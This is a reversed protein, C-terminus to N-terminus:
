AVPMIITNMTMVFMGFGSIGDDLEGPLRDSTIFNGNKTMSQCTNHFDYLWCVHFSSIISDDELVIKHIQEPFQSGNISDFYKGDMNAISIFPNQALVLLANFLIHIIFYFKM